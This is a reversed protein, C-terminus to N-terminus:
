CRIRLKSSNDEWRPPVGLESAEAKRTARAESLPALASPPPTRSPVGAPRTEAQAPLGRAAAGAAAMAKNATSDRRTSGRRPKSVLAALTKDRTSTAPLEKEEEDHAGGGLPGHEEAQWTGSSKTLSSISLKQPASKDTALRAGTPWAPPPRPAHESGDHVLGASLEQPVDRLSILTTEVLLILNPLPLAEEGPEIEDAMSTTAHEVEAM